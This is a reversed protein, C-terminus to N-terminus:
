LTLRLMRSVNDAFIMKKENDNVGMENISGIVREVMAADAMPFDTGFLQHDAGCFANACMLNPTNGQVATDCYFLRLSELLPRSLPEFRSPAFEIRKALYPITGGSHHTIFKLNPFRELVGGAALRMMAMSTAHPWGVINDFDNGSGQDQPYFPHNKHSLPHIWIPLDFKAMMEYLPMFDPSDLPKGNVSTFIQIGKLGLNNVARDAEKLGADMNNMPVAAVAAAFRAPYRAVLGAMEDNAIKALDPSKSGDAIDEIAPTVLTLVQRIEGLRDMIRFRQDMDWLTQNIVTGPSYKLLADMYKKPAVHTFADIMLLDNNKKVNAAEAQGVFSRILNGSRSNSAKKLTFVSACGFSLCSFLSRLFLRREKPTDM